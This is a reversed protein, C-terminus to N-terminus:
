NPPNLVMNEIIYDFHNKDVFFKDVIEVVTKGCFYSIHTCTEDLKRWKITYNLNQKPQISNKLFALVDKLLGVKSVDLEGSISASHLLFTTGHKPNFTFVKITSYKTDSNYSYDFHVSCQNDAYVLTQIQNELM